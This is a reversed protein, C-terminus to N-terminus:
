RFLALLTPLQYSCKELLTITTTVKIKKFVSTICIIVHFTSTKELPLSDYLDVKIKVYNHSITYRIGSIYTIDNSCDYLSSRKTSTKIKIDNNVDYTERSEDNIQVWRKTKFKPPQNPTNDCM